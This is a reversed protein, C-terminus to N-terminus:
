GLFVLALRPTNEFSRQLRNSVRLYTLARPHPVRPLPLCSKRHAGLPNRSQLLRRHRPWLSRMLRSSRPNHRPSRKRLSTSGINGIPNCVSSSVNREPMSANWAASREGFGTSSPLSASLTEKFIGAEGVEMRTSKWQSVARQELYFQGDAIATGM